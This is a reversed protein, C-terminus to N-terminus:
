KFSDSGWMEKLSAPISLNNQAVYLMLKGFHLEHQILWSIVSLKEKEKGFFVVEENEKSKIPEVIDKKM